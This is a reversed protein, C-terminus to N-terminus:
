IMLIYLSIFATVRNVQFLYSSSWTKYKCCGFQLAKCHSSSHPLSPMMRVHESTMGAHEPSSKNSRPSTCAGTARKSQPKAQELLQPVCTRVTPQRTWSAHHLGAGLSWGHSKRCRPGLEVKMQTIRYDWDMVEGEDGWGPPVRPKV